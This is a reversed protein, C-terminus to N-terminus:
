RLFNTVVDIAPNAGNHSFVDEDLFQVVHVLFVRAGLRLKVSARLRLRTM